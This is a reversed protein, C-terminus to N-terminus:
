TTKVLRFGYSRCGADSFLLYTKFLGLAYIKGFDQCGM